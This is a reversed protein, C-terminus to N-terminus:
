ELDNETLDADKLISRLTGKPLDRNGHVPISLIVDVGEKSYIHHSGTTRKLVWGQREVIKCLMKGSISKM